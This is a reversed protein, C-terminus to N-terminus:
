TIDYTLPGAVKYTIQCMHADGRKGNVFPLRGVFVSVTFAPNTAADAGSDPKVILTFTTRAQFLATHTQYIEGNAFDMYYQVVIDEIELVGPMSYSQLEGMAAAPQANLTGNLTVTDVHDSHDVANAVVSANYIVHKAM